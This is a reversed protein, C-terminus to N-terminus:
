SRFFNATKIESNNEFVMNDLLTGYDPEDIGMAVQMVRSTLGIKHGVIKRGKSQKLLVWSKKFLM